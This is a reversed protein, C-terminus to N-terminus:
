MLRKKRVVPFAVENRRKWPPQFPDNYQMVYHRPPASTTTSTSSNMGSSPSTASSETHDLLTWENSREIMTKLEGAKRETVAKTAYGGFWMVALAEEHIDEREIPAVSSSSSQVLGGGYQELRVNSGAIPSPAKVLKEEEGWYDSPMVFSMKNRDSTSIVPTTMAMAKKEQNQGFIYGALSNFAMGVNSNKRSNYDFREANSEENGANIDMYTSCVSFEDYRRVEWAKM